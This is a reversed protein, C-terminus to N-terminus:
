PAPDISSCVILFFTFKLIAFVFISINTINAFAECFYVFSIIFSAIVNIQSCYFCFHFMLHLLYDFGVKRVCDMM